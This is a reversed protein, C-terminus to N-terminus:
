EERKNPRFKILVRQWWNPEFLTCQGHGNVNEIKPYEDPLRGYFTSWSPSKGQPHYCLPDISPGVCNKLWKQHKCKECGPHCIGLLKNPGVAETM